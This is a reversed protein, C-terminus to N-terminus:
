SRGIVEAAASAGGPRFPVDIAHLGAEITTIAGLIMQANVHGMHGIRFLGESSADGPANFGIGIGLTLGAKEETWARLASGLQGGLEATTVAHSRHAPDAVNLRLPGEESWVDFAAWLARALTAHRAWIAEIGEEGIMDLAERLGYLHHTPATGDFYAMFREPHVRPRWDWYHTVCDATERAADARDNFYVFGLGPPTMLGKQCGAVLVDIGWDDMEIVDCALCAIADVMLLAPHGAADIAARVAAMDSRVSTSTDVLVATVAKIRHDTDARLIAEVRNPDIPAARGFDEVVTEVGMAAAMQGWGHGFWGTTLVLATDGRSFVNAISAEWAAHGNGIYIACHHRTRAVAKLDAIMEPMMDILPGNYINPAARHMARLVREPVVSPGPIALYSRGNALNSM